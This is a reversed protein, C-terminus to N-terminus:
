QDRKLEQALTTIIQDLDAVRRQLQERDDLDKLWWRSMQGLGEESTDGAVRRYAKQAQAFQGLQRQCNAVQFQVWQAELPSLPQGLMMEYNKLALEYAGIAYLNNGMRQRDIAQDLLESPLTLPSDEHSPPVDAAPTPTPTPQAPLIPIPRLLVPPPAQREVTPAPAPQPPPAQRPLLQTAPQTLPQPQPELPPERQPQPDPEQVSHRSPAPELDVLAPPTVPSRSASPIPKESPSSEQVVVPPEIPQAPVPEAAPVPPPNALQPKLKNVRDKLNQIRQRRTPETVPTHPDKSPVGKRTSPTQPSTAAHPVDDCRDPPASLGTAPLCGLFLALCAYKM